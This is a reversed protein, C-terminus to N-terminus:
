PSIWHNHRNQLPKFKGNFIIKLFSEVVGLNHLRRTQRLICPLGAVAPFDDVTRGSPIVATSGTFNAISSPFVIKFYCVRRSCYSDFIRYSFPVKPSLMPLDRESRRIDGVPYGRFSIHPGSIFFVDSKNKGIM